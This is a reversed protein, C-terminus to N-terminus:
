TVHRGEVRAKMIKLSGSGVINVRNDPHITPNPCWRWHDRNIHDPVLEGQGIGDFFFMHTKWLVRSVEKWEKRRDM